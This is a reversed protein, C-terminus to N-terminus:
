EEVRKFVSYIMPAFGNGPDLGMLVLTDSGAGKLWVTQYPEVFGNEDPCVMVDVMGTGAPHHMRRVSFPRNQGVLDGNRYQDVTSDPKYVLLITEHETGPSRLDKGNLQTSVWEWRGLLAPQPPVHRTTTAIILGTLATGLLMRLPFTLYKM